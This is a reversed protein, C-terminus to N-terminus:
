SVGGSEGRNEAFEPSGQDAGDGGAAEIPQVAEKPIACNPCEGILFYPFATGTYAAFQRAAVSNETNRGM